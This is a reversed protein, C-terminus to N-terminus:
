KGLLCPCGHVVACVNSNTCRLRECAFRCISAVHAQVAHPHASDFLTIGAERKRSKKKKKKEGGEGGGWGGGGGGGEKKKKKKERSERGRKRGERKNTHHWSSKRKGGSNDKAKVVYAVASQLQLRKRENYLM